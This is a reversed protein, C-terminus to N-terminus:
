ICEFSKQLAKMLKGFKHGSIYMLSTKRVCGGDYNYYAIIQHPLLFCAEVKVLSHENSQFELYIAVGIGNSDCGGKIECSKECKGNQVPSGKKVALSKQKNIM